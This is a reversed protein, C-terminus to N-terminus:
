EEIEYEGTLKVTAICADTKCRLASKEDPHLHEVGHPYVNMWREVTKVVKKKPREPAIIKVGPWYLTRGFPHGSPCGDKTYSHSVFGFMVVLPSNYTLKNEIEKVVGKGYLLCEVEDGVRANEFTTETM